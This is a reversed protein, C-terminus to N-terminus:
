IYKTITNKQTGVRLFKESTMIAKIYEGFNDNFCFQEYQIFQANFLIIKAHLNPMPNVQNNLDFLKKMETKFMCTIEFDIKVLHNVQGLDCFYRFPVRYVKEM